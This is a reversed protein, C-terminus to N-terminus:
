HYEFTKKIKIPVPGTPNRDPSRLVDIDESDQAKSTRTRTGLTTMSTRTKTRPRGPQHAFKQTRTEPRFCPIELDLVALVYVNHLPRTGIARILALRLNRFFPHFGDLDSWIWCFAWVQSRVLISLLHNLSARVTATWPYRNFTKGSRYITKWM